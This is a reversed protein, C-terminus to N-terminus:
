NSYGHTCDAFVDLDGFRGDSLVDLGRSDGVILRCGPRLVCLKMLFQFLELGFFTPMNNNFAVLLKEGGAHELFMPQIIVVIQTLPIRSAVLLALSDHVFRSLQVILSIEIRHRVSISCEIVELMLKDVSALEFVSLDLTMSDERFVM